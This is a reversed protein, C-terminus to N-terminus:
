VRKEYQEIQQEKGVDKTGARELSANEEDVIKSRHITRPDLDEPKEKGAGRQGAVKAEEFRAGRYEKGVLCCVIICFAVIGILIASILGYDPRVEGRVYTKLHLGATAEIQASASSAANGLQYSLGSFLARWAPPSIESLYIPM